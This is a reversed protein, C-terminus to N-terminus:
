ISTFVRYFTERFLLPLGAYLAVFAATFLKVSPSACSSRSRGAHLTVACKNTHTRDPQSKGPHSSVVVCQASRSPGECSHRCARPSHFRRTCPTRFLCHQVHEVVNARALKVDEAGVVLRTPLHLLQPDHPTRGVNGLSPRRQASPVLVPLRQVLLVHPIPQCLHLSVSGVGHVICTFKFSTFEPTPDPRTPDGDVGGGRTFRRRRDRESRLWRSIRVALCPLPLISRQPDQGRIFVRGDGCGNNM